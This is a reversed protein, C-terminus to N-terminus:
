FPIDDDLLKAAGGSGYDPEGGSRQPTDSSRDSREVKNRLSLSVYHNGNKDKKNWVNLWYEKGEVKITGTLDPSSDRDRRLNKFASGSMDKTEYAM